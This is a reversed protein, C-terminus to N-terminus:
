GDPSRRNPRHSDFVVRAGAFTATVRAQHPRDNRSRHAGSRGIAYHGTDRCCPHFFASPANQVEQSTLITQGTKRIRGLIDSRNRWRLHNRITALWRLDTEAEGGSTARNDLRTSSLYLSM